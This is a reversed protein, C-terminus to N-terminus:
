APVAVLERDGVPADLHVALEQAQAIEICATDQATPVGGLELRIRVQSDDQSEVTANAGYCDPIGGYFHVLVTQPDEPDVVLEDPTGVTPNVLDDRPEIRAWTVTGPDDGITQPPSSVVGDPDATTSTVASDVASVEDGDDGCGAALAVTALVLGALLSRTLQRM